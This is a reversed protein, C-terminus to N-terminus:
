LELQNANIGFAAAIRERTDKRPKAVTEQQAFAPQSIGMRKAVEDQTLNLHERWARVPPEGDVILSVVEHPIMKNTM